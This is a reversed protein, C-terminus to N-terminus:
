SIDNSEDVVELEPKAELKAWCEDCTCHPFNPDHQERYTGALEDFQVRRDRGSRRELIDTLLDISRQETETLRRDKARREM